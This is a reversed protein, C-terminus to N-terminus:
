LVVEKKEVLLLKGGSSVKEESRWPGQAINGEEYEFTHRYLILPKKIQKVEWMDSLVDQLSLKHNLLAHYVDAPGYYKESTGNKTLTCYEFDLEFIEKLTM